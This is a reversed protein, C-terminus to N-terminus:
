AATAFNGSGRLFSTRAEKESKDRGSPPAELAGRLAAENGQHRVDLRQQLGVFRPANLLRAQRFSFFLILRMRRFYMCLVETPGLATAKARPSNIMEDM